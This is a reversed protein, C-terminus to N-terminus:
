MPHQGTRGWAEPTVPASESLNELASIADRVDLKLLALNVSLDTLVALLKDGGVAYLCVYGHTTRAQLELLAADPDTLDGLRGALGLSSATIAAAAGPTTEYVDSVIARGDLSALLAGTVGTTRRLRRLEKGIADATFDRLAPESM